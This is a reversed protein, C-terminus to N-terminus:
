SRKGNCDRHRIFRVGSTAIITTTVTNIAVTSKQVGGSSAPDAKNV